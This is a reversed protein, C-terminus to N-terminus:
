GIEGVMQGCEGMIEFVGPSKGGKLKRINVSIEDHGIEEDCVWPKQPYKFHSGGKRPEVPLADRNLRYVLFIRGM